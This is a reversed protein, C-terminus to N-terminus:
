PPFMWEARPPFVPPWVPLDICVAYPSFTVRPPTMSMMSLQWGVGIQFRPQTVVGACVDTFGPGLVLRAPGGPTRSVGGGPLGVAALVCGGLCLLLALAVTIVTWRACGWARSRKPREASKEPPNMVPATGTILRHWSGSHCNYYWAVWSM